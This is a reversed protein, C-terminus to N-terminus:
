AIKDTKVVFMRAKDGAPLRYESVLDPKWISCLQSPIQSIEIAWEDSKMFYVVGGKAVIKRLSLAAKPIASFGRCIAQHVSDAALLEIKTNSVMLNSLELLQGIHKLFECKREDIDVLIVNQDPYLIAYVLGPFGNGSGFDYLDKSKNIKERVIKSALISDAFHVLDAQAETKSSILNITKNFKLLEVFYRKLKEHTEASLEPFWARLRWDITSSKKTSSQENNM